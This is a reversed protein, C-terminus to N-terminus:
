NENKVEIINNKNLIIEKNDRDRIKILTDDEELITATYVKVKNNQNRIILKYKKTTQFIRM